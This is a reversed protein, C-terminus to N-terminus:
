DRVHRAAEKGAIRGFVTGITMGFGAMYGKGLINGSMIEGAAFINSAPQGDQMIVQAKENVAVGLYTFTIGPRLPYAYYPPRDLPRAWHSKPPTLDAARCDDLAAPDFTGPQTAQNFATVTQALAAPDLALRTALDHISGAEIPPFVSPMFLDISKSDIIVNATQDPQQAVLRGWIAYRKPWFDEGEDYFRRAYKDVVIGFSICDLRTVIGGDFRPARADVAVAHCQREDGVPRAGRDLLVRLM